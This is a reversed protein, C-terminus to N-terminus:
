NNKSLFIYNNKKTIKLNNHDAGLCLFGVDWCVTLQPDDGPIIRKISFSDISDEFYNIKKFSAM